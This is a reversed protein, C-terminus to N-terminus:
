PPDACCRFGTSYDSYAVDHAVTAYNCGAGNIVTDLYFGGRFTGSPDATWEHLNGVMDFLQESSSCQANNGAPDITDPQQNICSDGLHTWADTPGYLDVAPHTARTDNCADEVLTDGYPYTTDNPGRCARRWEDDTCLRKGAQVCAAAAETQRIYGQPVAAPASKARVVHTTPSLFPSWPQEVDAVLEVLFAEYRDACFPAGETGVLAM